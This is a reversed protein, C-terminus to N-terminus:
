SVLDTQHFVLHEGVGNSRSSIAVAFDTLVRVRLRNIDTLTNCFLAAGLTLTKPGLLVIDMRDCTNLTEALLHFIDSPSVTVARLVLPNTLVFDQLWAKAASLVQQRGAAVFEPEVVIAITDEARWAYREVFKQARGEDFGLALVHRLRQNDKDGIRAIYGPLQCIDSREHLQFLDTSFTYSMPTVYHYKVPVGAILAYRAVHFITEGCFMTIDVDMASADSLL